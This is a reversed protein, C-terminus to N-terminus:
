VLIHFRSISKDSVLSGFIRQIMMNGWNEGKATTMIPTSGIKLCIRDYGYHYIDVVIM